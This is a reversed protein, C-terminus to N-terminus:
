PASEEDQPRTLTTATDYLTALGYRAQASYEALRAQQAELAEIALAALYEGQRQRAAAIRGATQALRPRLMDIRREFQANSVPATILAARTARLRDRATAIQADLRRLDRDAQWARDNGAAELEWQLVGRELRAKERAAALGPDDARAALAADTGAMMALQRQEDAGALLSWDGGDKARGLWAGLEDRRRELRPLDVSEVRETAGPLMGAFAQGRTEVLDAFAALDEARGGLNFTLFGLARYDKLAEQFEHGAMLHYLYRTEPTDPLSKLDRFTGSGDDEQFEVLAKVLRGSRISDVSERLRRREGDFAAIAAEYSTAAQKEATLKAYAYPVALYSEQVAADLLDRGRLETWPVLAEAFRDQAAAAWGAGLLAKNSQPGSLRVRELAPGAAAPRDAQLNAFGIAVNAKDRLSRLEETRADATGVRELLALGQELRGARILAVGLNYQGFAQWDAPGSWNELERVADDYRGLQMLGQALLVRREAEMSAELPGAAQRLAAVAEDFYSRAHLTKGLFFWARGRVSPPTSPRALLRRFVDSARAHQGFSLYMGGLLLEAEEAHPGLLGLSAYAETRVIADFWDDQFSHFLVDGYHPAEVVTPPLAAETAPQARAMPAAALLAATLVAVLSSSLAQM